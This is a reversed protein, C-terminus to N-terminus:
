CKHITDSIGGVADTAGACGRILDPAPEAERSMLADRLLDDGWRSRAIWDRATAPIVLLSKLADMHLFFVPANGGRSM